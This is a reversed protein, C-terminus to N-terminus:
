FRGANFRRDVYWPCQVTFHKGFNPHKVDWKDIELFDFLRSKVLDVLERRKGNTIAMRPFTEPTRADIHAFFCRKSDIQFYVAVCSLM